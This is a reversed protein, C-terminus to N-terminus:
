GQHSLVFSTIALLEELTADNKIRNARWSIVAINSPAYGKANDIRDLTPSCDERHDKSFALTIGLVPCREPVIVDSLSISFPIGRRRARYRASLWIIKAANKVRSREYYGRKRGPNKIHSARKAGYGCQRCIKARRTIERPGFEPVPLDLKCCSCRLTHNM